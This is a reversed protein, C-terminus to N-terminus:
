LTARDLQWPKASREAGGKLEGIRLNLEGVGNTLRRRVADLLKGDPHV